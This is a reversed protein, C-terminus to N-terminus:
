PAGARLVRPRRPRRSQTGSVGSATVVPIRFGHVGARRRGLAAVGHLHRYLLSYIRYRHRPDFGPGRNHTTREEVSSCRWPWEYRGCRDAWFHRLFSLGRVSDFQRGKRVMFREASQALPAHEVTRVKWCRQQETGWSRFGSTSYGSSAANCLDAALVGSITGDQPAKGRLHACRASFPGGVGVTLGEQCPPHRPDGVGLGSRGSTLM